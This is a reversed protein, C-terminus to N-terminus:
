NEGAVDKLILGLDESRDRSTERLRDHDSIWHYTSPTQESSGDFWLKVQTVVTSDWPPCYPVYGASLRLVNVFVSKSFEERKAFQLCRCLRRLRESLSIDM